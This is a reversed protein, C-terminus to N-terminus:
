KARQPARHMKHRLDVVARALTTVLPEELRRVYYGSVDRDTPREHGFDGIGSRGM